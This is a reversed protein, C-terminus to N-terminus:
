DLKFMARRAVDTKSIITEGLFFFVGAGRHVRAFRVGTVTENEDGDPRVVFLWPRDDCPVRAVAFCAPTRWREYVHTGFSLRKRTYEVRDTCVRPGRQVPTM